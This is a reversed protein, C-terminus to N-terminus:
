RVVDSLASALTSWGRAGASSFTSQDEQRFATVLYSIDRCPRLEAMIELENLIREPSSTVYIRKLAVYVKSGHLRGKHGVRPPQADKGTWEYNDDSPGSAIPITPSALPLRNLPAIAPALHSRGLSAGRTTRERSWSVKKRTTGRESHFSEMLRTLAEDDVEDDM